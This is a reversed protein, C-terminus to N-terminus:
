AQADLSRLDAPRLLALTILSVMVTALVYLIPGDRWGMAGVMWTALVPALYGYVGFDFWEVVSGIGGALIVRGVQQNPGRGASQM